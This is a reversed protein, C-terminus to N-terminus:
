TLMAPSALPLVLGNTMGGGPVDAAGITIM